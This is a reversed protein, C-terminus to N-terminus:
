LREFTVICGGDVYTLSKRGAMTSVISWVKAALEVPIVTDLYNAINEMNKEGKMLSFRAFARCFISARRSQACASLARTYAPKAAPM